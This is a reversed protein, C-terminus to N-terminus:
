KKKFMEQGMQIAKLYNVTGYGFVGNPSGSPECSNSTQKKSSENLVKNTLKINRQLEPVAGWLLAIGGAVNPTSMSTGSMATYGSTTRSASVVQTGPASVDPKLINKDDSNPGRSSFRAIEDSDKALAGVSIQDPYRSNPNISGCRPGRNGASNVVAIGATILAATAQKYQPSCRPACSWNNFSHSVVHPRKKPKPNKGELDTPALWWQMCLIQAAINALARCHILKAKPAVGIKRGKKGGGAVTGSCHTGHGHSDFPAKTKGVPDGWAYNHDFKGDKKTGKYADILAEHTHFLGTDGVGVIMGKGQHGLAWAEPAKVWKINSEVENVEKVQETKQEVEDIVDEHNLIVNDISAQKTSIIQLLVEKPVARVLIANVNWMVDFKLKKETLEKQLTSQTKEARKMLVDVLIEAREDATFSDISKGEHQIESIQFNDKMFIIVDAKTNKGYFDVLKNELM